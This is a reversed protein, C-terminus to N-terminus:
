TKCKANRINKESFGEELKLFKRKATKSEEHHLGSLHLLGHALMRIIQFNFSNGCLKAEKKVVDPCIFIEGCDSYDFSLVNTARNKERYTKNLIGSKQPSIFIINLEYGKKKKFIQNKRLQKIIKLLARELRKKEVKMKSQNLLNVM